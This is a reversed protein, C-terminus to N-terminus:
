RADAARSATVDRPGRALRRRQRLQGLLPLLEALRGALEHEAQDAVVAEVSALQHHGVGAQLLLVLAPRRPTDPREAQVALCGALGVLVAEGDAVRPGVVVSAARRDHVAM